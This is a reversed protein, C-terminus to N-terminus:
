SDGMWKWVGADDPSPRFGIFGLLRRAADTDAPTAYLGVKGSELLASAWPMVRRALRAAALWQRPRLDAMLAWCGFQRFGLRSFGALGVIEDRPGDVVAVVKGVPLRGGEAAFDAAFDARPTFAGLHHPQYPRLKM